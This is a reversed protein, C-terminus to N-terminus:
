PEKGSERRSLWDAYEPSQFYAYPRDDKLCVSTITCAIIERRDGTGPDHSLAKAEIVISSRRTEVIRCYVAIAAGRRGTSKFCVRDMAVTVFDTYGTEEMIYLAAAEDLWALMVGGFLHGSANLDKDMVIHRTVVDFGATDPRAM